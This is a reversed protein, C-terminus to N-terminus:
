SLPLANGQCPLPWLNSGQVACWRKLLTFYGSNGRFVGTLRNKIGALLGGNNVSLSSPFTVPSFDCQPLVRVGTAPDVKSPCTVPKSVLDFALARPNGKFGVIEGFRHLPRFFKSRVRRQLRALANRTVNLPEYGVFAIPPLKGPGTRFAFARHQGLERLPRFLNSCRGDCGFHHLPPIILHPFLPSIGCGVTVQHHGGREELPRDVHRLDRPRVGALFHPDHFGIRRRARRKARSFLPILENIRALPLIQSKDQEAPEMGPHPKLLNHLGAREPEIQIPLHNMQPLRLRHFKLVSLLSADWHRLSEVSKECSVAQPLWEHQSGLYFVAFRNVTVVELPWERLVGCRTPQWPHRGMHHPVRECAKQRGSPRRDVEDGFPHSVVYLGDLLVVSTQQRQM